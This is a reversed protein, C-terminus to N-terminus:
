GYEEADQYCKNREIKPIGRIWGDLCGFYICIKYKQIYKAIPDSIYFSCSFGSTSTVPFKPLM